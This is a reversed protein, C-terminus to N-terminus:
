VIREPHTYLNFSGDRVFAALTIGVEDALDVALSSPASVSAVVPISAVACKQVMEFSLRGSVVLVAPKQNQKLDSRPPRKVIGSLILDGITKDVANHRGIDEYSALVDGNANLVAVGHCGGTLSFNNQGERLIKTAEALVEKPLTTDIEQKECIELMDDVSQRGCVGCAATTLTGRRSAPSKELSIDLGADPSVNIVNCEGESKCAHSVNDLDDVSRILGESFLFGVALPEDYGPTRMTISIIEGGIRIELPEEVVVVDDEILTIVKGNSHNGNSSGKHRSRKAVGQMLNFGPMKDKITASSKM